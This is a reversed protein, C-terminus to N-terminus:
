GPVPGYILSGDPGIVFVPQGSVIEGTVIPLMSPTVPVPHYGLAGAADTGYYRTPAPAPVDGVLSISVIGGAPTGFVQVSNQGFISFSGGSELATVRVNLGDIQTQIATLDVTIAQQQQLYAYWLTTPYGQADAIRELPRPITPRPVAM